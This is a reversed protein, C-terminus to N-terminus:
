GTWSSEVASRGRRVHLACAGAAVCATLRPLRYLPRTGVSCARASSSPWAPLKVCFWALEGLCFSRERGVSRLKYPPVVWARLGKPPFCDLVGCLPAGSCARSRGHAPRLPEPCVWVRGQGRWHHCRESRCVCPTRLWNMCLQLVRLACSVRLCLVRSVALALGACSAPEAPLRFPALGTYTETRPARRSVHWGM